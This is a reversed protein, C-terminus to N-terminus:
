HIHTYTRANLFLILETYYLIHHIIIICLHYINFKMFTKSIILYNMKRGLNYYLKLILFYEECSTGQELAQCYNVFILVGITKWIHICHMNNHENSTCPCHYCQTINILSYYLLILIHVYQVEVGSTQRSICRSQRHGNPIFQYRIFQIYLFGYQNGGKFQKICKIHRYM